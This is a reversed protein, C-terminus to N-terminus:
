GILKTSTQGDINRFPILSYRLILWQIVLILWNSLILWHKREVAKLNTLSM